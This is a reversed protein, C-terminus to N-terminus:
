QMALPFPFIVCLVFLLPTMHKDLKRRVRTESRSKPSGESRVAKQEEANDNQLGDM